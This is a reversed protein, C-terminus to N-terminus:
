VCYMLVLFCFWIVMYIMFLEAQCHYLKCGKNISYLWVFYITVLEKRQHSISFFKCLGRVLSNMILCVHIM